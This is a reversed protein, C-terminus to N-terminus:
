VTKEDIPGAKACAEGLEGYASWGDPNSQKITTAGKPLNSSM